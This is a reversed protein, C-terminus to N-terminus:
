ITELKLATGPFQLNKLNFFSLHSHQLLGFARLFISLKSLEPHETGDAGGEGLAGSCAFLLFRSGSPPLPHSSIPNFSTSPSIPSRQRGARHGNGLLHDAQCLKVVAITTCGFIDRKISEM